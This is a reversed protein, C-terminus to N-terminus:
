PYMRYASQRPIEHHCTLNMLNAKMYTPLLLSMFISRFEKTHKYVTFVHLNSFNELKFRKFMDFTPLKIIILLMEIISFQGLIIYQRKLMENTLRLFHSFMVLFSIINSVNCQSTSDSRSSINMVSQFIEQTFKLSLPWLFVKKM